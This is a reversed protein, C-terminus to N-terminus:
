VVSERRTGMSYATFSLCFLTGRELFIHFGLQSGLIGGILYTSLFQALEGTIWIHMKIIKRLFKLDHSIALRFCLNM